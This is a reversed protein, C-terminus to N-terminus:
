SIYLYVWDLFNAFSLIINVYIKGDKCVFFNKSNEKYLKGVEYGSINCKEKDLIEIKLVPKYLNTKKLLTYHYRPTGNLFHFVREVDWENWRILGNYEDPKIKRARVTPTILSQKVRPVNGNEITDMIKSLLKIGTFSLKQNVEELREGPNIFIREQFIVDGTDEGKDIYHLTVGPSLVYDYYEWFLPAPGRYEPLHSYHINITGFKPISFVNEKLLHSMSYVVVLDPQINKMWKELGASDEKRFYYYPTKMKKSFIKLNLPKLTLSYYVGAFFRGIAKLFSNLEKAPACEVIGVVEHESGVVSEFLNSVGQTIIAVRM